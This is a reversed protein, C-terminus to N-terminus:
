PRQRPRRRHALLAGDAPRHAGGNEIRIHYSWFWRGQEPASQEALFSVAVRVTLEGTVAVDPFLLALTDAM